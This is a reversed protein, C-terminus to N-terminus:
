NETRVFGGSGLLLVSFAAPVCAYLSDTPYRDLRNCHTCGPLSVLVGGSGTLCFRDRLADYSLSLPETEPVFTRGRERCDLGRPSWVTGGSSTFLAPRGGADLGAVMVGGDGVAVARFDMAPYYAAYEANFDQRDWRRGDASRLIEGADTVAYLVRGGAALARIRGKAGPDIRQAVVGDADLLLIDRGRVDVAYLVGDQGALAIWPEELPRTRLVAGQGDLWVLADGAAVFGGDAPVAARLRFDQGRVAAASLLLIGFSLLIRHRSLTM